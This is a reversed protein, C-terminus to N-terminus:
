TYRWNSNQLTTNPETPAKLLFFSSPFACSAVFIHSCRVRIMSSFSKDPFSIVGWRGYVRQGRAGDVDSEYDLFRELSSQSRVELKCLAASM